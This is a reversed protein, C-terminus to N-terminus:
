KGPLETISIPTWIGKPTTKVAMDIPLLYRRDVRMIEGLSNQYFEIKAKPKEISSFCSPPLSYPPVPLCFYLLSKTDELKADYLLIEGAMNGLCALSWVVITALLCIYTTPKIPLSAGEILHKNIM